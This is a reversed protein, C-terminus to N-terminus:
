EGSDGGNLQARMRQQMQQQIQQMQELMNEMRGDLDGGVIGPGFPKFELDGFGNGFGGLGFGDIGQPLGAQLQNPTREVPSVDVGIEKGGRMVTLSLTSGAEGVKQVVRVLDEQSLLEQDDAFLLVDYKQLGAAAAPSDQGVADVLLGTNDGLGLQAQLAPAVKLCHVGIMYKKVNTKASFAKSFGGPMAPLDLGEGGNEGLDIEHRQGDADVVIAKGVVKTQQQGNNNVSQTSRQIVVSQASDLDIQQENGDRDTFTLKGDESKLLRNDTGENADPSKELEVPVSRPNVMLRADDVREGDQNIIEIDPEQAFLPTALCAVFTFLAIALSHQQNRRINM